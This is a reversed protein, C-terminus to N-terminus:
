TLKIRWQEVLLSHFKRVMKNGLGFSKKKKETFNSNFEYKDCITGSFFICLHIRCTSKPRNIPFLGKEFCTHSSSM